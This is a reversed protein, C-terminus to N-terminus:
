EILGPIFQGCAALTSCIADVDLAKPSESIYCLWGPAFASLGYRAGFAAAVLSAITDNDWTRNVAELIGAQPHDLFEAIIALATPVTELLYAGSYWSDRQARLTAPSALAPVVRQEVFDCLTGDFLDGPVRSRLRQAQGEIPRAGKLFVEVVDQARGITAGRYPNDRSTNALALLLAAWGVCAANSAYDDHTLASGLLLDPLLQRPQTAAHLAIQAPVRMLAGNGAARRTRRMQWIEDGAALLPYAADLADRVTHGMGVIPRACWSRAVDKLDLRGRRIQSRLLRASLQTDDTREGCWGGHDVIRGFKRERQAASMSEFPSGLTDGIEIGLLMARLAKPEIALFTDFITPLEAVAIEHAKMRRELLARSRDAIRAFTAPYVVDGLRLPIGDCYGGIGDSLGSIELRPLFGAVAPFPRGQAEVVTRAYALVANFPTSAREVAMGLSARHIEGGEKSVRMFWMGNHVPRNQTRAVIETDLEVQCDMIVEGEATIWPVRPWLHRTHYIM